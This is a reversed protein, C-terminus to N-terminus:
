EKVIRGLNDITQKYNERNEIQQRSLCAFGKAFKVGKGITNKKKSVNELKNTERMYSEREWICFDKCHKFKRIDTSKENQLDSLNSM